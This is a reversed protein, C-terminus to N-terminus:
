IENSKTRRQKKPRSNTDGALDLARTRKSGTGKPLYYFNTRNNELRQQERDNEDHFLNRNVNMDFLFEDDNSDYELDSFDQAFARQIQPAQANQRLNFGLNSSQRLQNHGSRSLATAAAGTIVGLNTTNQFNYAPATSYRNVLPPTYQNDDSDSDSDSDNVAQSQQRLLTPMATAAQYAAASCQRLSSPTQHLAQSMQYAQSTRDQQMGFEIVTDMNGTKLLENQIANIISKEQEITLPLLPNNDNSFNLKLKHSIIEKYKIGNVFYSVQFDIIIDEKITECKKINKLKRWFNHQDYDKHLFTKNERIANMLEFKEKQNLKKFGEKLKLTICTTSITNPEICPLRINDIKDIVDFEKTDNVNESYEDLLQKKLLSDNICEIKFQTININNSLDVIPKIFKNLKDGSSIFMASGCKGVKKDLAGVGIFIRTCSKEYMNKFTNQLHPQAINENNNTTFTFGSMTVETTEGDTLILSIIHDKNQTYSILTEESKLISNYLITGGGFPNPGSLENETEMYIKYEPLTFRYQQRINNDFFSIQILNLNNIKEFPIQKVADCFWEYRTKNGEMTKTSGSTDIVINISIKKNTSTIFKNDIEIAFSKSKVKTKIDDSNNFLNIHQSLLFCNIIPMNLFKRILKYNNTIFKNLFTNTCSLKKWESWTIFKLFYITDMKEAIMLFFQTTNQTMSLSM